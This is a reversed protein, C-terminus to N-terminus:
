KIIPQLSTSTNNNHISLYEKAEFFTDLEFLTAQRVMLADSVMSSGDNINKNYDKYATMQQSSDKIQIVTDIRKKQQVFIAKM